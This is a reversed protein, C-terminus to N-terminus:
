VCQGLVQRAQWIRFQNSDFNPIDAIREVCPGQLVVPEGPVDSAQRFTEM